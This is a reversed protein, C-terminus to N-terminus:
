ALGALVKCAIWVHMALWYAATARTLSQEESHIVSHLAVDCRTVVRDAWSLLRRLSCWAGAAAAAAAAVPGLAPAAEAAPGAAAAAAAVPGLAPAAEAAPGAAAAAQPPEPTETPRWWYLSFFFPLMGLMIQFYALTAQCVAEAQAEGALCSAAIIIIMMTMM